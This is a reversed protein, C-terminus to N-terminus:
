GAKPAAVCLGRGAREWAPGVLAHAIEHLLTDQVVELSNRGVFYTSLEIAKPGYKCLGMNVKSRNLRFSWDPLGFTNLLQQALEEAQFTRIHALTSAVMAMEM